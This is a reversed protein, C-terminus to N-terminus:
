TAILNRGLSGALLGSFPPQPLAQTEVDAHCMFYVSQGQPAPLELCEAAKLSM